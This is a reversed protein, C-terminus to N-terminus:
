GAQYLVSREIIQLSIICSRRWCIPLVIQINFIMGICNLCNVPLGACFIFIFWTCLSLNTFFGAMLSFMQTRHHVLTHGEFAGSLTVCRGQPLLPCQVGSCGLQWTSPLLYLVVEQNIHTNTILILLLIPVFHEKKVGVLKNLFTMHLM